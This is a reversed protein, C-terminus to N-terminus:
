ATTAVSLWLSCVSVGLSGARLLGRSQEGLLVARRRVLDRSLVHGAVSKSQQRRMEIKAKESESLATDEVALTKRARLEDLQYARSSDVAFGSVSGFM